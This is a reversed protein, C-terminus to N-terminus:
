QDHPEEVARDSHGLSRGPAVVDRVIQKLEKPDPFRRREARSFVLADDLLAEFVGGFGPELTVEIETSVHHPARGAAM